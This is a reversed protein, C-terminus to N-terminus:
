LPGFTGSRLVAGRMFCSIADTLPLWEQIEEPSLGAQLYDMVDYLTIRTGNISLGRKNRVVAPQLEGTESM